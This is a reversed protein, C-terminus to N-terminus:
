EYYDFYVSCGGVSIIEGFSSYRDWFLVLFSFYYVNEWFIGVVWKISRFSPHHIYRHTRSGENVGDVWEIIISYM